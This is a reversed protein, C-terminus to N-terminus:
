EANCGHTTPRRAAAFFDGNRFVYGCVAGCVLCAVFLLVNTGLLVAYFEGHIKIFDPGAPHLRDWWDHIGLLLFDPYPFPRPWADDGFGNVWRHRIFWCAVVPSLALCVILWGVFSPWCNETNTSSTARRVFLFAVLGVATGSFPAIWAVFMLTVPFAAFVSVFLVLLLFARLSFRFGHSVENM